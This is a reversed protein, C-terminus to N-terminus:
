ILGYDSFTHSYRVRVLKNSRIRDSRGQMGDATAAQNIKNQFLQWMQGQLERSRTLPIAIDSAMRAALAHVFLTPFEEPNEVRSIYRIFLETVNAIIYQGEIKWMLYREDKSTSDATLVRLCDAPIAFQTLDGWPIANASQPLEVRKTAFAWDYEQLCADRQLDFNAKCLAAETTPDDISIILNGGLWSLALNCIEVKSAM